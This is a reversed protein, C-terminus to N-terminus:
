LLKNDSIESIVNKLAKTFLRNNRPLDITVRIHNPYEYENMARVIIGKKLLKQFVNQGLNPSVDMLIFNTCSPIFDINLKALEKYLYKKGEQVLKISKNVQEKDTLSVAAAEQAIMNVNFPPRVRDLYDVIEKSAFGYGVRLGALGYIKSFTRLIIINPYSTLLKLTDPYDRQIKAYEYYAEDFVVLPASPKESVSKLFEKIENENNCTGTPNNPNAVFVIKTKSTIAQAMKSLDHTYQRMPVNIVRCNMLDGAMKYRIFAHESAIVDDGPSLFTKAILEILEDSGSGLIINQTNVAFKNSIAQKLAWSNSDPYYFVKNALKKILGIAKKSPGLPNENSAMKIVSKLGLERKIEEIPKGAVYPQFARCCPRVYRKIDIKM